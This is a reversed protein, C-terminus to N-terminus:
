RRNTIDLCGPVISTRFTDLVKSVNGKNSVKDSLLGTKMTTWVKGM